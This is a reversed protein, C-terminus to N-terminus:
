SSAEDSRFLMREGISGNNEKYFVTLADAGIPDVSVVRVTQGSVIGDVIADKKINQLSLM